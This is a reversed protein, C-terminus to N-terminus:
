VSSRFRHVVSQSERHAESTTLTSMSMSLLSIYNIFYSARNHLFFRDVRPDVYLISPCHRASRRMMLVRARPSSLSSLLFSSINGQM